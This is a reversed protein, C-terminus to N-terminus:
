SYLKSGYLNENCLAAIFFTCIGSKILGFFTAAEVPKRAFDDPCFQKVQQLRNSLMKVYPASIKGTKSHKGDIIAQFIKGMVGLCVLHMYEFVTHTVLDLPLRGLPCEGEKYHEGDIKSVSELPTRLRHDTGRCIMVSPRLYEGTVWCKSWPVRSNHGMQGLAFARAPADAIFCRLNIKIKKNEFVIGDNNLVCVVDDIFAKFFDIASIPKSSGKFVGVIEPKLRNCINAARIQIPWMQIKGNKDLTAGDTHFDIILTEPINITSQLISILTQEFGLHFYEGGALVKPQCSYARTGLITRPAVHIIKFCSHKKLVLLIGKLQQFNM